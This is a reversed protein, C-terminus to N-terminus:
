HLRQTTSHGNTSRKYHRNRLYNNKRREHLFKKKKFKNKQIEEMFGSSIIGSPLAVLGIGLVAILAALVKGAATVPYVDGYGVTTLTAISWWFSALINPFCDPQIDNEIYYMLSSALILLILTVFLTVFLENKKNKIIRGLLTLSVFYRNLKFIRLLRTLRLIRLIRLDFSILFPLYFPIIALLDIIAMISFTYKIASKFANDSHYKYDSTIIRCFYEITFVIVSITEISDLVSLFYTSLNRFSSLIISIVNVIILIVITLDFIKSVKDNSQAPEIIDYLRRLKKNLTQM